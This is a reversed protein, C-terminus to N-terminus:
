GSGPRLADPSEDSAASNKFYRAFRLATDATIGPARERYGRNADVPVRLAMAMKNM